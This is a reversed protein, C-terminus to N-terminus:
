RSERLADDAARALRQLWGCVQVYSTPPLPLMFLTSTSLEGTTVIARPREAETEHLVSGGQTAGSPL